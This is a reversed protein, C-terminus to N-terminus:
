AVKKQLHILVDNMTPLIAHGLKIVDSSPQVLDPIQFTEM